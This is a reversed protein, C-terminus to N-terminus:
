HKKKKAKEQPHAQQNFVAPDYPDLLVPAGAAAGEAEVQKEVPASAPVPQTPKPAAQAAGFIEAPASEIKAPHQDLAATHEGAPLKSAVSAAEHSSAGSPCTLRVWEELTRYAQAEKNKFIPQAMDGHVSIAKVLVLNGQPHEKNMQTLVAGLNQQTTKRTALSNGFVRVLKFSGGRGTAHCSACANMLIPQVKTIFLSLSQSNVDPAAQVNDPEEHTPAAQGTSPKAASCQLSRLLRRSEEHEPRLEVAATVEELAQKRLSHVHCWRALRLHEDPDLLNARSRLFAYADERSACLRLVNETPVWLEGLSRRIRYQTGQREIEGELTHENDLVLVRGTAQPAVMEAARLIMWGPVALAVACFACAIKTTM